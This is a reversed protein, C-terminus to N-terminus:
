ASPPVLLVNCLPPWLGPDTPLDVLHGRGILRSRTIRRPSYDMRGVFESWILEHLDNNSAYDRNWEIVIYPLHAHITGLAGRVVLPEWGEVDIKVLKIRQTVQLSGLVDDLTRQEVLFGGNGQRAASYGGSTLGVRDESTTFEVQGDTSGLALNHVEICALSPNLGLNFLFTEYNPPVPEFSIVRGSPGVSNAWVLSHLGINGGVDVVCDGATLIQQTVDFTSYEYGSAAITRQYADSLDLRMAIGGRLNIVVPTTEQPSFVRRALRWRARRPAYQLSRFWAKWLFEPASASGIFKSM